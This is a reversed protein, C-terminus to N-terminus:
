RLMAKAVRVCPTLGYPCQEAGFTLIDGNQSFDFKEGNDMWEVSAIEDKVGTFTYSDYRKGNIVVNPSGYEKLNFFFFYMCGDGKLAFDKDIGNV